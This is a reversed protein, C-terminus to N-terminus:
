FRPPRVRLKAASAPAIEFGQERKLTLEKLALKKGAM